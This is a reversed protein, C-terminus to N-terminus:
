FDSAEDVVNEEYGMIDGVSGSAPRRPTRRRIDPVLNAAPPAEHIIMGEHEFPSDYPDTYPEEYHGYDPDHDPDNSPYRDLHHNQITTPINDQTQIRRIAPPTPRPKPTNSVSAPARRRDLQASPNVGRKEGLPKSQQTIDAVSLPATEEHSVLNFIVGGFIMVGLAVGTPLAWEPLSFHSWFSYHPKPLTFNEAKFQLVKNKYLGRHASSALIESDSEEQPLEENEEDKGYLQALTQEPPAIPLEQNTLDRRDFEPIEYINIWTKGDDTSIRDTVILSNMELRKLIHFKEFPGTKLGNEFLWFPGEFDNQHSNIIQPSRRQFQPYQFFPNWEQPEMRSALAEEFFAENEQAYLKLNELEYPGRVEDGIKIIWLDEHSLERQKIEEQTLTQLKGNM